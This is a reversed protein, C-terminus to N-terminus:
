MTCMDSSVSLVHGIISGVIVINLTAKDKM